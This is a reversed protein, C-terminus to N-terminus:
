RGEVRISDRESLSYDYNVKSLATVETISGLSDSIIRNKSERPLKAECGLRLIRGEGEYEFTYRTYADAIDEDRTATTLPLNCRDSDIEFVSPLSIEFSNIRNIDGYLREANEVGWDLYVYTDRDNHVELPMEQSNNTGLFVPGSTYTTRPTRPIGFARADIREGGEFMQMLTEASIFYLETYGWTEFEFDANFEFRYNNRSLNDFECIVTRTEFGSFEHNQPSVVGEYEERGSNATCGFEINTNKDDFTRVRVPISIRIVDNESYSSRIMPNQITIGTDASVREVQGQYGRGLTENIRTDLETRAGTIINGIGTISNEIVTERFGQWAEDFGIMDMGFGTTEPVDSGYTGIIIILAMIVMALTYFKLLFQLKSSGSMMALYIPWIPVIYVLFHLITYAEAEIPALNILWLFLPMFIIVILTPIISSKWKDEFDGELSLYFPLSLAILYISARIILVNTSTGFNFVFADVLHVAIAILFLFIYSNSDKASAM